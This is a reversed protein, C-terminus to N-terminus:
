AAILLLPSTHCDFQSVILAFRPFRYSRKPTITLGRPQLLKFRALGILAFTGTYRCPLIHITKKNQDLVDDM